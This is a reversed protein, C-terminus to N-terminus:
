RPVSFAIGHRGHKINTVYGRPNTPDRLLENVVENRTNILSVSFVRDVIIRLSTATKRIYKGLRFRFSRGVSPMVEATSLRATPFSPTRKGGYLARRVFRVHYVIPTM